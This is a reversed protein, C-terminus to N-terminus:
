KERFHQPSNGYMKKFMESFYYQNNFHLMLSIQKISYDTQMLLLVAKNMKLKMVHAMPSTNGYQKFLRCLYVKNIYRKEAINELSVIDSFNDKIYNYCWLYTMHSSALYKSTQIAQSGLKLLLVRLYSDCITQSDEYQEACNYAIKEFLYQIESPDPTYLVRDSLDTIKKFMRAADTGTFHVYIHVWPMDANNIIYSSEKPTFYYTSCPAAIYERKNTKIAAQGSVTYVIRYFPYDSLHLNYGKAVKKTGGFVTGLKGQLDVNFCTGEKVEMTYADADKDKPPQYGSTISNQLSLSLTRKKIKAKKAM